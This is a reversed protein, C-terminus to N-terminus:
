KHPFPVGYADVFLEHVPAEQCYSDEQAAYAQSETPGYYDDTVQAAAYASYPDEFSPAHLDYAVGDDYAAAYSFHEVAPSQEITAAYAYRGHQPIPQRQQQFPPQPGRRSSPVNTQWPM